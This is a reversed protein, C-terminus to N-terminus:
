LLGKKEFHKILTEIGYKKGVEAFDNDPLFEDPTNLHKWKFTSTILKSEKKGQEDSGFGIYVEKSNDNIYEVNEESFCAINEAQVSCVCPFFKKVVVMDKVSKVILSKDCNGINWKGWLYSFPVNNKWRWKFKVEEKKPHRPQLPRYLKFKQIDEAYYAFVLDDKPIAMRQRNLIVSKAQYINSKKLEELSLHYDSWYKEGAKTFPMTVVQILTEKEESLTPQEYKSIITKYDGKNDGSIGLGFRKDIEILCTNFDCSCLQKVFDFCNGRWRGDGYDMHFLEGSKNKIIFSPNSDKRFPSSFPRNLVFKSPCFMRYIDYPSLKSLIAEQTLTTRKSGKISM